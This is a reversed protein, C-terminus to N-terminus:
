SAKAHSSAHGTEEGHSLIRGHTTASVIRIDVNASHPQLERILAHAQTESDTLIFGTPGWSSQGVGDHGMQEARKLLGTIEDHIFRGGQAPAFHDGITNQLEGIGRAFDKLDSELLAPLIRMLTLRCLHAAETAPFEPLDGFAQHEEKGSLGEHGPQALLLVIRWHEPFLHRAVISPLSDGSGRGGDVLFGGWEFAGIGIGSRAGRGLRAAIQRLDLKLDFLDNVACGVSLAMQTGSGLGAHRPIAEHVRINIAGDHGVMNLLRRAYKLARDSDPGEASFGTSRECEVCTRIENIAVGMGGFRRGLGGHLDLFGLHLRAPAEVRIVHNVTAYRNSPAFYILERDSRGGLCTRQPFPAVM